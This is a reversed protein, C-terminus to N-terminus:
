KMSSIIDWVLMLQQFINLNAIDTPVIDHTLSHRQLDM